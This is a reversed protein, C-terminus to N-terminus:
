RLRVIREVNQLSNTGIMASIKKEFLVSHVSCVMKVSMMCTDFRPASKCENKRETKQIVAVRTCERVHQRQAEPREAEFHPGLSLLRDRVAKM